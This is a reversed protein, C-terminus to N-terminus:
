ISTEKAQKTHGALLPTGTMPDDLIARGGYQLWRYAAIWMLLVLPYAFLIGVLLAICGAIFVAIIFLLILFIQVRNNQTIRSSYKFAEFVGMNRDVIAAQAFGFRIALYIGPFIFLFLGFTVMLWYLIHTIFGKLLLPGGSFLQVISFKEGSVINLGLRTAGLTLFVNILISLLTSVPSLQDNFMQRYILREM